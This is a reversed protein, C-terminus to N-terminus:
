TINFPPAVKLERWMSKEEMCLYIPVKKSRKAMMQVLASYIHYRITHPYRLKKDYGIMLEGDLIKNDPFRAEIVKKLEPKFRFTGISIWAIDKAKIADFLINIVNGYHKQWDKFYIVPDFHFGVKYGAETCHLASNIRDM